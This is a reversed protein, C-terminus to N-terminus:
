PGRRVLHVRVRVTDEVARGHADKAPVFTARKACERAAQGVGYGPDTLIQATVVSGHADVTLMADVFADGVGAKEADSPLKCGWDPSVPTARVSPEFSSAVVGTPSSSGHHDDSLFVPPDDYSPPPEDYDRAGTPALVSPQRVLPDTAASRLDASPAPL